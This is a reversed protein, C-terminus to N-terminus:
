DCIEGILTRLSRIARRAQASEPTKKATRILRRLRQRDASPFEDILANLAPDGDGLLRTLWVDGTSPAREGTSSYSSGAGAELASRLGALDSDRLLGHIFRM